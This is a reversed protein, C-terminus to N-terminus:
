VVSHWTILKKFSYDAKRFNYKILSKKKFAIHKAYSFGLRELLKISQINDKETIVKIENIPSNEFVESITKFCADYMIGKGQHAKDLLYGMYITRDYEDYDFFHVYGVLNEDILICYTQNPSKYTINQSVLVNIDYEIDRVWFTDFKSNDKILRYLDSKDNLFVKRIKM